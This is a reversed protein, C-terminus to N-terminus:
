TIGMGQRFHAALIRSIKRIRGFRGSSIATEVEVRHSFKITHYVRSAVVIWKLRLTTPEELGLRVIPDVHAWEQSCVGSWFHPCNCYHKLSDRCGRCGFICPWIQAEHYRTTTCWANTWSKIVIMVNSLGLSQSAMPWARLMEGSFYWTIFAGGDAARFM